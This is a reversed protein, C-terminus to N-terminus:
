RVLIVYGNKENYEGACTYKIKWVYTGEQAPKNKYTGDWGTKSDYSSFIIEGIRNYINIEYNDINM